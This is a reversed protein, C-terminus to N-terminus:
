EAFKFAILYLDVPTKISDYTVFLLVKVKHVRAVIVLRASPKADNIVM